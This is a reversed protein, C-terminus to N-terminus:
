GPPIVSLSLSLSNTGAVVQSNSSSSSVESPNSAPLGPYQAQTFGVENEKNPMTLPLRASPNELGFLVDAIANGAEQGPMFNM